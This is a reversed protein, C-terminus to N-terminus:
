DKVNSYRIAKIELQLSTKGNWHNESINYAIDIPGGVILKEYEDIMRFGIAEYISQDQKVKFKLTSQDKGLVKPMGQVKINTSLFIPKSNKPGYPELYKLFNIMRGNVESLQIEADINITPVLDSEKLNSGCYSEFLKKFEDVNNGKITLGAAMPHGGYGDLTSSCYNLAEVIDLQSISRCSGKGIKNELGIIVTPKNYIEKIRSAVIGIVGSHWNEKYLVIGSKKNFEPDNEIMSLSENEMNLTILKRKENEKDLAKAIEMANVQNNSSLLKVARTAEGLRGAANIKPTVWFTIQGIGIRDIQLKSTEILSRIGLNNGEKIQKLGFYSIIRNEDVMPVIDAAIGLTVIDAYKWVMDLDVSITDAIAFALKFAVGAGCLGNFPYSCDERNPNIVAICNPIKEEPKHHDTVIVDIGMGMAYEIQDFANIGCDCTIILTSGISNAFDIGRKSLGYGDIDRHPIYYSVDMNISKFFLSLMATSSVGDVDYDGFIMLKNGNDRHNIIAKVAKDMDKLLYPDHLKSKDPYFFNSSIERDIIGRLSMIKAISYPLKFDKAVEDVIKSDFEKIHWYSSSM